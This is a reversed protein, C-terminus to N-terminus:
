PELKHVSIGKVSIKKYDSVIKGLLEIPDGNNLIVSFDLSVPVIGKLEKEKEYGVLLDFNISNENIKINAIKGKWVVFCGNYLPPNNKVDSYKFSDRVTSFDPKKIFTKLLLAREKVYVSSNSLLIRNIELNAMNDRYKLLYRKANEFHQKIEKETLEYIDKVTNKNKALLNDNNLEITEIDNRGSRSHKYYEKLYLQYLSYSGALTIVLLGVIIIWGNRRPLKPYFRKINSIEFIEEKEQKSIIKRSFEIGKKAIRNQPNSDLVRLWIKLAGELDRKKLHVAALGLQIQSNGHKIQDARELYSYAGGFDGSYLCSFGLLYYFTYSERYRFIQPELIHIVETFKRARFLKYVRKLSM